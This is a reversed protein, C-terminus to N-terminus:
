KASLSGKQKYWAGFLGFFHIESTWRLFAWALYDSLRGPFMDGNFLDFHWGYWVARTLYVSLWGRFLKVHGVFRVTFGCWWWFLEFCTDSDISIKEVLTMMGISWSDL